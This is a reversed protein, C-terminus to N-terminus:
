GLVLGVQQQMEAVPAPGGLVAPSTSVASGWSLASVIASVALMATARGVGSSVPM